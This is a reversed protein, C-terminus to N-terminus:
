ILIIHATAVIAMFDADAVCKPLMSSTAFIAYEFAVGNITTTFHVM